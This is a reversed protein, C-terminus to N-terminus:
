GRVYQVGRTFSLQKLSGGGARSDLSARGSNEDRAALSFGTGCPM